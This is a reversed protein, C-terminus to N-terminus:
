LKAVFLPEEVGPVRLAADFAVRTPTDYAGQALTHVLTVRNELDVIWYERVGHAAYLPAKILLDRALSSAAIEVVLLADPGKVRNVRMAAPFLFFDPEPEEEDSLRLPGDPALEINTPLRRLVWSILRQKADWHPEGESPMEILEGHILELRAKDPLIGAEIMRQVDGSTFRHRKLLPLEPLPTTSRDM